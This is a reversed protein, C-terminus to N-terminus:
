DPILAPRVYGDVIEYTWRNYHVEGDNMYVWDNLEDVLDDTYSPAILCASANRTFSACDSSGPLDFGAGSYQNGVNSSVDYLWFSHEAYVKRYRDDMYALGASAGSGYNVCNKMKSYEADGILGGGKNNLTCYNVCNEVSSISSGSGVIGGSSDPRSGVVTGEVALNRIVGDSYGFLGAGKNDRLAPNVIEVNLGKVVHGNGDFIGSFPTPNRNDNYFWVVGIPTWPYDNLDLDDVLKFYVNQYDSVKNNVNDALLKLQAATAIQIPDSQSGTGGDFSTAVSKGDWLTLDKTTAFTETEGYATGKSNTAYARVYYQTEATLGELKADLMTVNGCSLKGDELTPEGNTSSYVFGADSLEDNGASTVTAKVRAAKGSVNSVEVATLEPLLIPLTTFQVDNSYGVGAENIAYARVHYTTNESLGEIIGKFDDLTASVTYDAITPNALLSYCFGCEEVTGNGDDMVMSSATAVGTQIDSIVVQQLSPVSVEVANWGEHASVTPMEMFGSQAADLIPRLCERTYRIGGYFISLLRADSPFFAYVYDSYGGAEIALEVLKQGGVLAGRGIDYSEYLGVGSLNFETGEAGKFRIRGVPPMLTARVTVVDGSKTYQAKLDSYLATHPTLLIQDGAEQTGGEFYYAYCAAGATVALSGEYSLTWEDNVRNYVAKGGIRDSAGPFSFYVCAGDEWSSTVTARTEGPVAYGGRSAEFVLKCVHLDDSESPEIEEQGCAACLFVLSMWVAGIQCINKLKM